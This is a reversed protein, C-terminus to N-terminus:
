QHVSSDANSTRRISISVKNDNYFFIDECSNFGSDTSRDAQGSDNLLLSFKM